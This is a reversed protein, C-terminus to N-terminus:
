RLHNNRNVFVKYSYILHKTFLYHKGEMAQSMMLQERNRSLISQKLFIQNIAMVKTRNRKWSLDVNLTQDSIHALAKNIQYQCELNWNCSDTNLESTVGFSGEDISRSLLLEHIRRAICCIVFLDSYFLWHSTQLCFIRLLLRSISCHHSGVSLIIGSSWGGNKLKKDCVFYLQLISNTDNVMYM